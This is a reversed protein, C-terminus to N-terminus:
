HGVAVRLVHFTVSSTTAVPQGGADVVSASVAHTGRDMNVLTVSLSTGSQPLPRGDVTLQIRHGRALAPQLALSVTVNGDNARVGEDDKPNTIAFLTYAPAQVAPPQDASGSGGGPEAVEGSGTPMQGASPPPLPKVDVSKAGPVPRDSFIVSGDPGVSRYVQAQATSAVVLVLLLTVMQMSWLM